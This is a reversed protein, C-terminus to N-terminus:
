FPFLKITLNNVGQSSTTIDGYGILSDSGSGLYKHARIFYKTNPKVNNIVREGNNDSVEQISYNLQNFLNEDSNGDISVGSVIVSNSDLVTTVKISVTQNTGGTTTGGGSGGSM